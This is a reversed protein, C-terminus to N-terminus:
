ECQNKDKSNRCDAIIYLSQQDSKAFQSNRTVSQGLKALEPSIEFEEVKGCRSCVVQAKADKPIQYYATNSAVKPVRQLIGAEELSKLSRYVTAFSLSKTNKQLQAYIDKADIPATTNQLLDIIAKRYKTPRLGRSKLLNITEINIVDM